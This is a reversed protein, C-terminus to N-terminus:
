LTQLVCIQDWILMTAKTSCKNKTAADCDPGATSHTDNGMCLNHYPWCFLNNFCESSQKCAVYCCKTGGSMLNGMVTKADLPGAIINFM